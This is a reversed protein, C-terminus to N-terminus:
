TVLTRSGPSGTGSSAPEAQLCRPTLREARKIVHGKANLWRFHVLGRYSDPASLNSVQKLYKYVKVKPDSARWVGLGPATVTHFEEEGTEREELDIRISMRMTGPVATMEAVFTASREAQVTSSLCEEISASALTPASSAHSLPKGGHASATAAGALVLGSAAAAVV